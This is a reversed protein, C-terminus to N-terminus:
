LTRGCRPKIDSSIIVVESLGPQKAMGEDCLSGEDDHHKELLM